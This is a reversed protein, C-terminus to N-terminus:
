CLWCFRHSFCIAPSLRVSSGQEERFNGLGDLTQPRIRTRAPVRGAEVVLCSVFWLASFRGIM